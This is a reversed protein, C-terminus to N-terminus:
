RGISSRAAQVKYRWADEHLLYGNRALADATRVVATVYPGHRPYLGDLTAEDFPVFAGTLFCGFFAGSSHPVHQGLPVTVAVSRVGGLANGHGDRVIAGSDTTTIFRGPPPAIGREIWRVLNEIAARHFPPSSNPNVPPDCGPPVGAPFDRAVASAPGAALDNIEMDVHSTGAVEFTRYLPSDPLRTTVAGTGSVETESNWRIVPVPANIYRRDDTYDPSTSNIQRASGNAASILYGDWANRGSAMVADHHFFNVYTVQYRASQSYGVNLLTNVGYDAFPNQPNSSDRLLVALQSFMDYVQGADTFQLSGYRGPNWVRLFTAAVPRGTLGVWAYGERLLKERTFLWIFDLDYGATPNLMEFVVVGNFRRPNAPKRVLLRTVYSVTPTQVQVRKGADFEYINGAGQVLYEQEIYGYAALNLTEANFPANGPATSLLTVIPADPSAAKPGVTLAALALLGLLHGAFAAYGIGAGRVDVIRRLRM